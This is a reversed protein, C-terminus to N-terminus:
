EIAYIVVFDGVVDFLSVDKSFVDHKIWVIDM